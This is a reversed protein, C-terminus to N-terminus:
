AVEGWVAVAHQVHASPMGFSTEQAYVDIQTRYSQPRPSAFTLKLAYNLSTRLLLLLALRTGLRPSICWYLWSIFLLFFAESGLQSILRM